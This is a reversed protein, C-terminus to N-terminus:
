CFGAKLPLDLVHFLGGGFAVPSQGAHIALSIGSAEYNREAENYLSIRQRPRQSLLFVVVGFVFIAGGQKAAQGVM